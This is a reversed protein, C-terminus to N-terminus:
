DHGVRPSGMPLLGGPEDARPVRWALISSHAALGEEPPTEPGLSQAQM